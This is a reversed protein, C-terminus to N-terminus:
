LSDVNKEVGEIVPSAEDKASILFQVKNDAM